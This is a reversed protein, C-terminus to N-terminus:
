IQAFFWELLLDGYWIDLIFSTLTTHLQTTRLFHFANYSHIEDFAKGSPVISLALTKITPDNNNGASQQTLIWPAIFLKTQLANLSLLFKDPLSSDPDSKSSPDLLPSPLAPYGEQIPVAFDLLRLREIRPHRYLFKIINILPVPNIETYEDEYCLSRAISVPPAFDFDTLNPLEINGLVHAWMGNQQRLDEFIIGEWHLSLATLSASSRSLTSLTWGSFAYTFHMNPNLNLETFGTPSNRNRSRTTQARQLEEQEYKANDM